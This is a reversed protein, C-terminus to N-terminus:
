LPINDFPVNNGLFRTWYFFACLRAGFHAINNMVDNMVDITAVVFHAVSWDAILVHGQLYEICWYELKWAYNLCSALQATTATRHYIPQLCSEFRDLMTEATGHLLRSLDTCAMINNSWWIRHDIVGELGKWLGRWWATKLVTRTAEDSQLVMSTASWSGSGIVTYARSTVKRGQLVRAIYSDSAKAKAKM